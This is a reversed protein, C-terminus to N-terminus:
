RTDDVRHDELMILIEGALKRVVAMAPDNIKAEDGKHRNTEGIRSLLADIKKLREVVPEPYGTLGADLLDDLGSDNYLGCIAEVFSSVDANNEGTSLWLRRQEEISSLERLGAIVMKHSTDNMKKMM